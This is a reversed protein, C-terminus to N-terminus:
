IILYLGWLDEPARPTNAKRCVSVPFLHTGSPSPQSRKQQKRPHASFLLIVPDAMQQVEPILQEDRIGEAGQRCCWSPVSGEWRSVFGAPALLLAPPVFAPSEGPFYSHWKEALVSDVSHGSTSYGSSLRSSRAWQDLPSARPPNRGGQLHGLSPYTPLPVGQHPTSTLLPLQHQSLSDLLGLVANLDSTISQVSDRLQQIKDQQLGPWLDPRLDVPPLFPFFPILSLGQCSCVKHRGEKGLVVGTVPLWLGLFLVLLLSPLM